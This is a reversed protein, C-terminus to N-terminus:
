KDYKPYSGLFRYSDVYPAINGITSKVKSDQIHGNFDIFFVYDGLNKKSPRSEIRCLNISNEAFPKLIEVLAGPKNRLSIAISTQDNNSPEPIQDNLLAFKTYNEPQDNITESLIPINYIEAAIRTSIAAYTNDKDTILKVAESTSTSPQKEVGSPFNRNIFNQCQALGQPHSIITQIEDYKKARTILCHSIKIVTEAVIMVKSSSIVLKDLTERVSGEISNEVPVVGVINNLTDVNDIVGSITTCPILDKDAVKLNLSEIFKNTAIECYSGVPGLFHVQKM